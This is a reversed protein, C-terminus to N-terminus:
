ITTNFKLLRFRKSAVLSQSRVLQLTVDDLQEVLQFSGGVNVERHRGNSVALVSVNDCAM